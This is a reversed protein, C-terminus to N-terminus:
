PLLNRRMHRNLSNMLAAQTTFSAQLSKIDIANIQIMLAPNISTHWDFDRNTKCTHM